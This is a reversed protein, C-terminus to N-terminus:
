TIIGTEIVIFFFVYRLLLSLGPTHFSLVSYFLQLYVMSFYIIPETLLFQTQIETSTAYRRKVSISIGFTPIWIGSSYEVAYCRKLHVKDRSRRFLLRLLSDTLEPSICEIM